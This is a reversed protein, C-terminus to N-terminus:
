MIDGGTMNLNIGNFYEAKESLLFRITEAVEDVYVNRKM